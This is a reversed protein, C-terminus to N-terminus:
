VTRHSKLGGSGLQAWWARAPRVGAERGSMLGRGWGAQSLTGVGSGSEKGLSGFIRACFWSTELRWILSNWGM